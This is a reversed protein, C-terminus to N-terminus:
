KGHIKIREALVLTNTLDTVFHSKRATALRYAIKIFDLFVVCTRVLNCLHSTHGNCESLKYSFVVKIEQLSQSLSRRNLIQEKIEVYPRRAMRLKIVIILSAPRIM